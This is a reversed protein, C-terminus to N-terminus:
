IWKHNKDKVMIYTEMIIIFLLLSITVDTTCFKVVPILALKLLVRLISRGVRTNNFWKM